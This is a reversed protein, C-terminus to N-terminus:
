GVNRLAGVFPPLGWLLHLLTAVSPTGTKQRIQGIQPRVTSISVAHMRAIDTPAAGDSLQALVRREAPTLGYWRAFWQVALTDGGRRAPMLVAIGEQPLPVVAVIDPRATDGLRLLCRREREIADRLAASLVSRDRPSRAELRGARLQLANANGLVARARHNLHRVRRDDAVIVVGYDLEDLAAALWHTRRLDVVVSSVRSSM